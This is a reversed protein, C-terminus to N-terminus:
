NGFSLFVISFLVAPLIVIEILLITLIPEKEKVEAKAINTHLRSYSDTFPIWGNRREGMTKVVGYLNVSDIENVKVKLKQGSKLQFLYTKGPIVKARFETETLESKKSIPKFATCSPICLFVIFWILRTQLSQM